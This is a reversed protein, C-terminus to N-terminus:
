KSTGAIMQAVKAMDAPLGKTRGRKGNTSKEIAIMELVAKRIVPTIPGEYGMGSLVAKVAENNQKRTSVPTVDVDSKEGNGPIDASVIRVRTVPLPGDADETTRCVLGFPDTNSTRVLEYFKTTKPDYRVDPTSASSAGSVPTPNIVGTGAPITLNSTVGTCMGTDRSIIDRLRNGGVDHTTLTREEPSRLLGDDVLHLRM